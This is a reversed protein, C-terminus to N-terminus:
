DELTNLYSDVASYDVEVTERPKNEEHVNYVSFGIWGVLGCVVLAAVVNRFIRKMKEQKMIKKRNAKEEKYREVKAQSM